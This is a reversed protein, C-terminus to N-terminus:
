LSKMYSITLPSIIFKKSSNWFHNRAKYCCKMWRNFVEKTLQKQDYKKLKANQQLVLILFKEIENLQNAQMIIENNKITLICSLIHDDIEIDLRNFLYQYLLYEFKRMRHADGQMINKGHFRCRVLYEPLNYTKYKEVVDIWMRYDEGLDFGTKYGGSPIADRRIVVSPQAFYNRFLMIAPIREPKANLKWKKKLLRGNEDIMSVWSGVMGFDPHANLFEVQQRFKDPMAIDDSDFPAILRGAAEKLGINRSIVIGRNTGNTIVKIRDDKFSRSLQLSKDTSGDDVIILEFDQYTQSLISKIAEGIYRERNFVPMIISLGPTNM